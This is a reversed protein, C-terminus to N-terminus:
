NLARGGWVGWLLIHIIRLFSLCKRPRWLVAVCQVDDDVWTRTHYVRTGPIDPDRTYKPHMVPVQTGPRPYIPSGPTGPLRTGPYLDRELRRCQMLFPQLLLHPVFCRM